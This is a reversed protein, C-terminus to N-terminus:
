GSGGFGEVDKEEESKLKGSQFNKITVADFLIARPGFQVKENSKIIIM